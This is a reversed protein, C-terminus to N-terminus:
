LEMLTVGLVDFLDFFPVKDPECIALLTRSFLTPKLLSLVFLLFASFSTSKLSTLIGSCPWTSAAKETASLHQQSRQLPHFLLTTTGGTLRWLLLQLQCSLHCVVSADVRVLCGVVKWTADALSFRCCNFLKQSPFKKIIHCGHRVWVCLFTCSGICTLSYPTM